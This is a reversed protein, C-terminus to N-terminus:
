ASIQALTRSRSKTNSRRSYAPHVRRCAPRASTEPSLAVHKKDGPNAYCLAKYFDAVSVVVLPDPVANGGPNLIEHSGTFSIYGIHKYWARFSIPM